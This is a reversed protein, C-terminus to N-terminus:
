SKLRNCVVQPKVSGNINVSLFLNQERSCVPEISPCPHFRLDLVFTRYDDQIPVLEPDCCSPNATSSSIIQGHVYKKQSKSIIPYCNSLHFIIYRESINCDDM